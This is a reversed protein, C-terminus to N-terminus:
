RDTGAPYIMSPIGAWSRWLDQRSRLELRVGTVKAILSMMFAVSNCMQTVDGERGDVGYFDIM